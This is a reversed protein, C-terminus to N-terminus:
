SLKFNEWRELALKAAACLNPVDNRVIDFLRDERIRDYEHRLINGFGRIEHWPQDGMLLPALEGLKAIAESMRQLCREVADLVLRNEEFSTLDM